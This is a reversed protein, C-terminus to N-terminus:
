EESELRHKWYMPERRKHALAIFFVEESTVEFVVHYEFRGVSAKRINNLATLPSAEPFECVHNVTQELATEFEGSSGTRVEFYRSAELTEELMDPHYTKRV